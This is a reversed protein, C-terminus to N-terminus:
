RVPQAAGRAIAKDILLRMDADAKASAERMKRGLVEMERGLVEMDDGLDRMPKELERMKAGLEQMERDLDRMQRDLTQREREIDQRESDSLQRGQRGALAGLRSGVVGQRAGVAGQQAGIEGQKMGIEGQRAGIEGQKGGVKGQEGGIRGVPEWINDLENLVAPDRVVYEKGNKLFWLLPEGSQRLRRAREVDGSRGSMTTNRDNRIYVFRLEEQKGSEQRSPIAAAVEPVAPAPLPGPEVTFSPAPLVPKVARAALTFPTIASATLVLAAATAIRAGLSPAIPHRLMVIRRKMNSFSWAAGAAAFTAPRTAVGLDLLLRGYAQPPTELAALVAADCAAERWFAYERAALRVLPHFFFIREAAAPVCGLWVDKRRVHALEHCLAMRQQDQPLGAFREAPVLIVPHRFGTVVPSEVESSLRVEPVRRVDLLAATDRALQQLTSDAPSSRRKVLRATRWGRASMIASIGLGCTWLALLGWTGLARVSVPGKMAPDAAIPAPAFEQVTRTVTAAAATTPPAASDAPLVPLAVPTIWALAVVFKAAACWWLTARASPSLHPLARNVIWVGCVVVAGGVSARALIELM